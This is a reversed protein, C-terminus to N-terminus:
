TNATGLSSSSQGESAGECEEAGGQNGQWINPGSLESSDILVSGFYGKISPWLPNSSLPERLETLMRHIMSNFQGNIM